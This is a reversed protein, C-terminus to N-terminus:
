FSSVISSKFALDFRAGNESRWCTEWLIGGKLCDKRILQPFQNGVYACFCRGCLSSSTEGGHPVSGVLPKNTPIFCVRKYDKVPQPPRKTLCSIWIDRRNFCFVPSSIWGHQARILVTLFSVRLTDALFVLGGVRYTM